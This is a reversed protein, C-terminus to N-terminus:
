YRFSVDYDEDKWPVTSIIYGMRNVWHWGPAVWFVNGGCELVTFVYHKDKRVQEMVHQYEEGYTEFMHGNMVGNEPFEPDWDKTITNKVPAHLKLFTDWLRFTPKKVKTKAM